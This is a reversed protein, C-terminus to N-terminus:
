HKAGNDWRKTCQKGHNWRLTKIKPRHKQETHMMIFAQRRDSAHQRAKADKLSRYENYRLAPTIAWSTWCIRGSATFSPPSTTNALPSLIGLSNTTLLTIVECVCVCVSYMCCLRVKSRVCQCRERQSWLIADEHLVHPRHLLETLQCVVQLCTYVFQLAPTALQRLQTTQVAHLAGHTSASDPSFLSQTHCTSLSRSAHTALLSKNSKDKKGM